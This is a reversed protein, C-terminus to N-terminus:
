NWLAHRSSLSLSPPHPSASSAPAGADSIHLALVGHKHCKAGGQVGAGFDRHFGFIRLTRYRESAVHRRIEFGLAELVAVIQDDDYLKTLLNQFGAPALCTPLRPAVCAGVVAM